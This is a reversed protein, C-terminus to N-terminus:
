SIPFGEGGRGGGWGWGGLIGFAQPPIPHLVLKLSVINVVQVDKSKAIQKVKYEYDDGMDAKYKEFDKM